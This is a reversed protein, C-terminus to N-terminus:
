EKGYSVVTEIYRIGHDITLPFVIQGGQQANFTTVKKRYILGIDKAYIETRFDKGVLSSDARQIVTVTYDFSQTGVIKPQRVDIMTFLQNLQTSQDVGSGNMSNGNWTSNKIFPLILKVYTVNNEVKILYHGDRRATWVSDIIWPGEVKSSKYREMRYSITGGLDLTSDTIIEKLFFNSIVNGNILSYNVREVQYIIYNKTQLPFYTADEEVTSPEEMEKKCSSISLIVISFFLLYVLQRMNIKKNLVQCLGVVV